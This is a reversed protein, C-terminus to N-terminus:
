SFSYSFYIILVEGLFNFKEGLLIILPWDLRIEEVLLLFECAVKTLSEV